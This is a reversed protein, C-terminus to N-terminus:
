PVSENGAGHLRAYLLPLTGAGVVAVGVLAGVGTYALSSYLIYLSTACFLLPTLPFLPVRFPRPVDPERWRLVFLSVGVLLFFFWFVPATYEVMTEFGQRTTLGLLVLASAIGGQVFLAITPAGTRPHWRGLAAFPPFDRGLAYNTRAGTIITANASTLASLAVLVSIVEAGRDGVM